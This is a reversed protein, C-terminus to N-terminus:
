HVTWSSPREEAYRDRMAFLDSRRTEVYERAARYLRQIEGRVRSAMDSHLATTMTTM